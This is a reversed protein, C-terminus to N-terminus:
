RLRLQNKYFSFLFNMLSLVAKKIFPGLFILYSYAFYIFSTRSKSSMNFSSFILQMSLFIMQWCIDSLSSTDLM